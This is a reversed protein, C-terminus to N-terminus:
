VRHGIGLWRIFDTLHRALHNMARHAPAAVMSSSGATTNKQLKGWLVSQSTSLHVSIGGTDPHIRVSGFDLVEIFGVL